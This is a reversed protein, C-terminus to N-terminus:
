SPSRSRAAPWVPSALEIRWIPGDLALPGESKVFAPEDGQLIWVHTDPPQKGILPAVFGAIGGLEVKVVYRTAKRTSGGGGSVTFPDEGEPTVVLRVLRPKPVAVIMPIVTRATGPPINKLLTLMVGNGLGPPLELREEILEEVGKKDRSRVEIRSRAVELFVDVSTAFSPGKQILRDSVLQFTGSQRFVATEDHLSGDRFRFVLRSTVQGDRSTQLLDGDAITEGSLTRLVLFGHVLGEPHRVALPQAPLRAAVCLGAAAVGAALVGVRSERRM